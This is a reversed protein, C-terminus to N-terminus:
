LERKHRKRKEISIATATNHENEIQNLANMLKFYITLTQPEVKSWYEVTQRGVDARRCLESISIGLNDCRISLQEFTKMINKLKENL